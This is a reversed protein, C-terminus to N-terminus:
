ICSSYLLFILGLRILNFLRLPPSLIEFYVFKVRRVHTLFLHPKPLLFLQIKISLALISICSIDGSRWLLLTRFHHRWLFNHSKNLHKSLLVGSLGVQWFRANLLLKDRLYKQTGNQKPSEMCIRRIEPDALTKPYVTCLPKKFRTYPINCNLYPYATYWKRQIEPIFYVQNYNQNYKSSNQTNQPIKAFKKRTYQYVVVGGPRGQLKVRNRVNHVSDFKSSNKQLLWLM